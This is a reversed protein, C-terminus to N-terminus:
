LYWYSVVNRTSYWIWDCAQIPPPERALVLLVCSCGSGSVRGNFELKTLLLTGDLYFLVTAGSHM